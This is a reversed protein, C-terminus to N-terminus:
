HTTNHVHSSTIMHTHTHTHTHYHHNHYHAFDTNIIKNDLARHHQHYVITTAMGRSVCVEILGRLIGNLMAYDPAEGKGDKWEAVM